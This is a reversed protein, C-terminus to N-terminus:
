KGLRGVWERIQQLAEQYEATATVSAMESMEANKKKLLAKMQHVTQPNPKASDLYSELGNRIITSLSTALNIISYLSALQRDKNDFYSKVQIRQKELNVDGRAYWPDNGLSEQLYKMLRDSDINPEEFPDSDQIYREYAEAIHGRNIAGYIQAWISKQADPNQSQITEWAINSYRAYLAMIASESLAVAESADLRNDQNRGLHETSAVARVMEKQLRIETIEQIAIKIIASYVENHTIASAKGSDQLFKTIEKKLMVAGNNRDVSIYKRFEGEHLEERSISGRYTQDKEGKFYIAYDTTSSKPNLLELLEQITEYIQVILIEIENEISELQVNAGKIELIVSLNNQSMWSELSNYARYQYKLFNSEDESQSNNKTKLYKFQDWASKLEALQTEMQRNKTIIADEKSPDRLSEILQEAFGAESLVDYVSIYIKDGYLSAAAM